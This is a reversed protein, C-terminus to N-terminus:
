SFSTSAKDSVMLVEGTEDTDGGHDVAMTPKMRDKLQLCDRVRHGLENCHYFRIM